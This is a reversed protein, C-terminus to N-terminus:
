QAPWEWVELYEFIGQEILIATDRARDYVLANGLYGSRPQEGPADSPRLRRTWTNTAPDIEHTTVANTSGGVTLFVGRSAIYVIDDWIIGYPVNGASMLPTYTNRTPDWEGVQDSGWQSWVLFTGRAEDAAIRPATLLVPFNEVLRSWQGSAPAYSWIEQESVVVFRGNRRDYTM